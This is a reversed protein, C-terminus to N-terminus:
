VSGTPKGGPSVVRRAFATRMPKLSLLSLVAVKVTPASTRAPCFYDNTARVSLPLSNHTTSQSAGIFIRSGTCRGRERDKGLDEPVREVAKGVDRNGVAEVVDLGKEENM